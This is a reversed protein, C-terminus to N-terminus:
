GGDSVRCEMKVRKIGCSRVFHANYVPSARQFALMDTSFYFWTDDRAAVWSFARIMSEVRPLSPRILKARFASLLFHRSTPRKHLPNCTPDIYPLDQRDHM